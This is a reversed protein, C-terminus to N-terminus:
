KLSKFFKTTYSLRDAKKKKQPPPRKIQRSTGAQGVGFNLHYQHRQMHCVNREWTSTGGPWWNIFKQCIIM